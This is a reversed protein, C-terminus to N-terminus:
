LKAGSTGCFGCFNYFLTFKSPEFRGVVTYLAMWSEDVVTNSFTCKKRFIHTETHGLDSKPCESMVFVNQLHELLINLGTIIM